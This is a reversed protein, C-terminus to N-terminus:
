PMVGILTCGNVGNVSRFLGHFTFVGGRNGAIDDPVMGRYRAFPALRHIPMASGDEPERAEGARAFRGQRMGHFLMQVAHRVTTSPPSLTRWPNHASRPNEAVSLTSFMRRMPSIALSKMSAPTITNVANM